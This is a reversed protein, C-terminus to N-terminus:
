PRLTKSLTAFQANTLGSYRLCASGCVVITPGTTSGPCSGTLVTALNMCAPPVNDFQAVGGSPISSRVTVGTLQDHCIDFNYQPVNCPGVLAREVTMKPVGETNLIDRKGVCGGNSPHDGCWDAVPGAIAGGLIGVAIADGILPILGIPM